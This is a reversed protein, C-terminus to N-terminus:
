GKIWSEVHAIAAALTDPLLTEEDPTFRSLVFDAGDGRVARGGEPAVGLRLRAFAQTGLKEIIDSVGNHGAASADQSLRLSGFPLDLEDHVVLLDAPSLKYFGLLARVSEGSANMFTLPEALIIKEGAVPGDSVLAQWKAEERFEPLDFRRRAADAVMFGYNHRTRAYRPGPNGLGVVLKM